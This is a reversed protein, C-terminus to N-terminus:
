ALQLRKARCPSTFSMTLRAQIASGLYRPTDVHFQRAAALRAAAPRASFLYFRLRRWEDALFGKTLLHPPLGERPALMNYPIPGPIHRQHAFARLLIVRCCRAIDTTINKWMLSM